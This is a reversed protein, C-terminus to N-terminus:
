RVGLMACSCGCIQAASCPVYINLTIRCSLPCHSAKDQRLGSVEEQGPQAPCHQLQLQCLSRPAHPCFM